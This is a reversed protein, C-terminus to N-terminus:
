ETLKLWLSYKTHDKNIRWTFEHVEGQLPAEQLRVTAGLMFCTAQHDAPAFQSPEHPTRRSITVFNIQSHTSDDFYPGHLLIQRPSGTVHLYSIFWKFIHCIQFAHSVNICSFQVWESILVVNFKTIKAVPHEQKSEVCSLMLVFFGIKKKPPCRYSLRYLSESRAPRDPSQITTCALNKAGTWIPGPVWGAEQVIPVADKGRSLTPLAHRQGGVLM